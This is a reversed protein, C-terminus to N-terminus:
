GLPSTGSGTVIWTYGGLGSPDLLERVRGARALDDLSGGTPVTVGLRSLAEAQTLRHGAVAQAVSDVAVPATVDASGDLAVQVQRGERYCRIGGLFPRDRRDHGYDILLLTGGTMRRALDRAADDRPLGIVARQGPETLPWWTELWTGAAADTDTLSPGLSETGDEVLVIRTVGRDDREVLHAPVTDLWENAVVLGELAAPLQDLWCVPEPLERPRPRLEVGVLQLRPDIRHLTALLEGSGAGIDYVTTLDRDRALTAVAAAFGSSVMPSTRFHAAPRQALYFGSDGYLAEAWADKWAPM